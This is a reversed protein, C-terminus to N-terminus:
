GGHAKGRYGVRHAQRHGSMRLTGVKQEGDHRYGHPESMAPKNFAHPEAMGPHHEAKGSAKGHGKAGGTNSYGAHGVSGESGESHLPSSWDFPRNDDKVGIAQGNPGHHISTHADTQYGRGNGKIGDGVTASSAHPTPKNYGTGTAPPQLQQNKGYGRHAQSDYSGTGYSVSSGVATTKSKAVM